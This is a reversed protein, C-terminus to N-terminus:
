EDVIELVNIKKLKRLFDDIDTDIAGEGFISYIENKLGEMTTRNELSRIINVGGGEIVYVKEGKEEFVIISSGTEVYEHKPNRMMYEM